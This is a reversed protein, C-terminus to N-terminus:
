IESEVKDRLHRCSKESTEESSTLQCTILQTYRDATQQNFHNLDAWSKRPIKFNNNFIVRHKGGIAQRFEQEDFTVMHNFHRPEIILIVKFGRSDLLSLLERLYSLNEPIMESIKRVEHRFPDLDDPLGNSAIIGDGNKFTIVFRNNKGRAYNIGRPDNVIKVHQNSEIEKFFAE